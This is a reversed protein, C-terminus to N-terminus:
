EGMNVLITIKGFLGVTKAITAKCEATVTIDALIVEAKGGEAEIM